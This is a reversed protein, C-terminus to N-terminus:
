QTLIPWNLKHSLPAPDDLLLKWGFIRSLPAPDNILEVKTTTTNSVQVKTTTGSSLQVKSTFATLVPLKFYDSFPTASHSLVPWNFLNSLPTADALSAGGTSGTAGSAKRATTFKTPAAGIPDFKDLAATAKAGSGFAAHVTVVSRGKEVEEACADAEEKGLGAQALNAAIDARSAGASPATVFVEGFGLGRAEQAASAAKDGDAYIRAIVQAM